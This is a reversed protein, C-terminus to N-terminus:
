PGWAQVVFGEVSFGTSQPRLGGGGGWGEVRFRSGQGRM